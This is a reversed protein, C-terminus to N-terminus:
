PARVPIGRPLAAMSTDCTLFFDLGLPSLAANEEFAELDPLSLAREGGDARLLLPGQGTLAALEVVLTASTEPADPDGRRFRSIPALSEWTGIALEAEEATVLPAGIRERLWGRVARTNHAGALHIPITEDALATVLAGAAPSLPAPAPCGPLTVIAGPDAMAELAQRFVRAAQLVDSGDDDPVPTDDPLSSLDRGTM